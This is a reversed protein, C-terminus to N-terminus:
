QLFLWGKPGKARFHTNLDYLNGSYNKSEPLFGRGLLVSGLRPYGFRDFESYFLLSLEAIPAPCQKPYSMLFIQCLYSTELIDDPSKRGSGPHFISSRRGSPFFRRAIRWPLFQQLEHYEIGQLKSHMQFAYSNVGMNAKSSIMLPNGFDGCWHEPLKHSIHNLHADIMSVPGPSIIWKLVRSYNQHKSYDVTSGVVHDSLQGPARRPELDVPYKRRLQQFNLYM